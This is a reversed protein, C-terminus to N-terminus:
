RDLTGGALTKTSNDTLYIGINQKTAVTVVFLATLAWAPKAPAAANACSYHLARLSLGCFFCWWVLALSFPPVYAMTTVKSTDWVEIPGYTEVVAAAHSGGAAWATVRQAFERNIACKKTLCEVVVSPNLAFKAEARRYEM